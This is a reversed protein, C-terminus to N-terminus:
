FSVSTELHKPNFSECVKPRRPNTANAKDNDEDIRKSIESLEDKLEKYIKKVVPDDPLLHSWDHMLKPWEGSTLGFLVLNQVFMQVDTEDEDPRM